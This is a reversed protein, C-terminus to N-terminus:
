TEAYQKLELFNTQILDYLFRKGTRSKFYKERVRAEQRTKVEETYVVIFPLYPKTTREYGGNHRNLRAEVDGTFGVYIYKRNISAIAYITFM